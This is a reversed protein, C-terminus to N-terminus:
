EALAELLAAVEELTMDAFPGHPPIGPDDLAEKVESADMGEFDGAGHCMQCASPDALAQGSIMLCILITRKLFMITVKKGYWPISPISPISPILSMWGM